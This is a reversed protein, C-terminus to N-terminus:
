DIYKIAIYDITITVEGSSGCSWFQISKLMKNGDKSWTDNESISFFSENTITAIKFGDTDDVENNHISYSGIAGSETAFQAYDGSENIFRICTRNPLSSKYRLKIEFSKSLDVSNLFDHAREFQLWGGPTTYTLMGDNYGKFFDGNWNNGKYLYGLDAADFDLLATFGDGLEKSFSTHDAKFIKVYDIKLGKGYDSGMFGFHDNDGGVPNDFGISTVEFSEANPDFGKIRDSVTTLVDSLRITAMSFESLTNGGEYWEKQFNTVGYGADTQHLIIPIMSLDEGLTGNDNGNNLYLILNGTYKVQIVDDRDIVLTSPLKYVLASREWTSNWCNSSLVGNEVTFDSDIWENGKQVKECKNTKELNDATEFDLSLTEFDVNVKKTATFLDGIKATITTIGESQAIAQDDVLSVSEGDTTFQVDIKATTNLELSATDGVMIEQTNEAYTLQKNELAAGIYNTLLTKESDKTTQQENAYLSAVYAVSRTNGNDATFTYDVSNDAQSVTKYYGVATFDMTVDKVWVNSGKISMYNADDADVYMKDYYFNMIQYKGANAEADYTFSGDNNKTAWAYKAEKGFVNEENLPLADHYYQPALLIGFQVEKYQKGEGVNKMFENYENCSWKMTYRIGSTQENEKLRISAGPELHIGTKIAPTADGSNGANAYTNNVTAVGAAFSFVSLLSLVYITFKKM